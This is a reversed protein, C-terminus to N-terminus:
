MVHSFRCSTGNRCNGKQFFSCPQASPPGAAMHTGSIPYAVAGQPGSPRPGSGGPGGPEHTFRCTNGFRCGQPTNFFTCPNGAGPLGGDGSPPVSPAATPAAAAPPAAAASAPAPAAPTAPQTATKFVIKPKPRAKVPEIKVDEEINSATTTCGPDICAEVSGVRCKCGHKYGKCCPCNRSEPFWFENAVNSLGGSKTTPMAGSPMVGGRPKNNHAAATNSPTASPSAPGSDDRVTAGDMDKELSAM